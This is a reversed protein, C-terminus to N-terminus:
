RAVMDRSVFYVGAAYEHCNQLDDLGTPPESEADVDDVYTFPADDVKLEGSLQYLPYGLYRAVDQSEPDFGKGQHFQRLGAYIRADWSNTSVEASLQITPFGLRTADDKSLHEIGSPDLSWYAPCAPWRFSSSGTQLDQAPCIFLFGTLQPATTSSVVIKFEIDDVVVYDEFNSVIGLRTFIHNAQSLWYECHLPSERLNLWITTGEVEDTNFRTWGDEMVEGEACDLEWSDIVAEVNPLFAIEVSDELENDPSCSIVTGLTVTVAASIPIDRTRALDWDCIKHYQALTLSNIVMAEQNPIDLSEIRQPPTEAVGAQWYYHMIEGPVLDACLQGTSRRVWFTCEQQSLHRGFADSFYHSAARFEANCHNHIYVTLIPSDRYLALFQKFPILDDYFVTAHIKNSSAAAHIQIINPHRISMYKGIDRRWQEEAGEGQYMSVTMISRRGEIKAAFVRRVQGRRNVLGRSNDIHIEHQLDIDGLPIMRFDSPEVPASNTISTFTGGAITFDKSGPFFAGAYRSSGGTTVSQSSYEVEASREGDTRPRVEM